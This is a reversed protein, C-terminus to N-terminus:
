DVVPQRVPSRQQAPAHEIDSHVGPIESVGDANGGGKILTKDRRAERHRERRHECTALAHV